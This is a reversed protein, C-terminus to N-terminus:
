LYDVIKGDMLRLRQSLTKGLKLLIKAGISPKENIMLNLKEKTLVLLTVDETAVVDASHPEGDLISMEGFSKGANLTAIVTSQNKNNEKMVQVKGKIIISLLSESGGEKLITGGRAIRVLKMYVSITQLEHASMGEAWPSESLLESREKISTEPSQM